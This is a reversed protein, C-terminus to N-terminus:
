NILSDTLTKKNEILFCHFKLSFEAMTKKYGCFLEDKAKLPCGGGCIRKAWCSICQKDAKFPKTFSEWNIGEDINGVCHEKNGFTMSCKYIDGKPTFKITFPNYYKCEAKVINECIEDELQVINSIFGPRDEVVNDEMCNYVEKLKKNFIDLSDKDMALEQIPTNVIDIYVHEFGIEWLKLVDSKFSIVGPKTLTVRAIVNKYKSLLIKINKEVINFTPRGDVFIRNANHITEDGDISINITMNNKIIVDLIEDDMITGNTTLIYKVKMNLDKSRANIYDTSYILVEKNLLPEGGFFNVSMTPADKRAYKFFYDICKKATDKSMLSREEYIGGGAFCYKCNMNCNHAISLWMKNLVKGGYWQDIDVNKNIRILKSKDEVEPFISIYENINEFIKDVESINLGLADLTLVDMIRKKDYGLNIKDIINNISKHSQSLVGTESDYLFYKDKYDFQFFRGKMM